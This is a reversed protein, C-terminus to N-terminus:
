ARTARSPWFECRDGGSRVLRVIGFPAEVHGCVVACLTAHMQMYSYRSSSPPILFFVRGLAWSAVQAAVALSSDSSDLLLYLM